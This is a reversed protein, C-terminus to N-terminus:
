RGPAGVSLSLLGGAAAGAVAEGGWGVLHFDDRWSLSLSGGNPALRIGSTASVGLRPAVYIAVASLNVIIFSVRDPGPALTQAPPPPPPPAPSTFGGSSGAGATASAQGGKTRPTSAAWSARGGVGVASSSGRQWSPPGRLGCASGRM